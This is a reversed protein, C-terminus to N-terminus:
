IYFSPICVNQEEFGVSLLTKLCAFISLVKTKLSCQPDKKLQKLVSVPVRLFIDFLAAIM